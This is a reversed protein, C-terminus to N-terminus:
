YPLRRVGDPGIQQAYADSGGVVVVAQTGVLGRGGDNGYEHTRLHVAHQFFQLFVSGQLRVFAIVRVQFQPDVFNGSIM